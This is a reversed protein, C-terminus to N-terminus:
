QYPSIRYKHYDYNDFPEINNIEINKLEIDVEIYITKLKKLTNFSDGIPKNYKYLVVTELNELNVFSDYIPKKNYSFLDLYELKKLNNFSNNIDQNYSVLTLKKLNLLNNFANDIPLNFNNMYLEELNKLNNFAKGIVKNYKILYLHKLNTLNDLSNAIDIDYQDLYLKELNKLYTFSEKIPKNYETLYLEKLNTLNYFSNGIDDNNYYDLYLRELKLLSNFSDGIPKNYDILFLDTLESLTNLSNKLEYRKYERLLLFKLNKLKNFSNDIFHNYNYLELKELNILNDFSNNIIYNFGYLSLYKLSTLEEFSNNIPYNYNNLILKKLKKLNFLIPKSLGIFSINLSEINKLYKLSNGFDKIVFRFNADKLNNFYKIYKIYDDDSIYDFTFSKFTGLLDYMIQYKPLEKLDNIFVSLIIYTYQESIDHNFNIMSYFSYMFEVDSLDRNYYLVNIKEDFSKENIDIKKLNLFQGHGPEFSVKFENNLNLVLSNEDSYIIKINESEDIYEDEKLEIKDKNLENLIDIFAKNSNLITKFIYEINKINNHIDNSFKNYINKNPLNSVVDLWDIMTQNEDEFQLNINPYKIYFNKLADSGKQLKSIDFIGKDKIIFYNIINLITTEGCTSFIGYKSEFGAKYEMIKFEKNSLTFKEFLSNQIDNYDKDKIKLFNINYKLKNDSKIFNLIYYNLIHKSYNQDICYYLYIFESLRLIIDYKIDNQSKIDGKNIASNHKNWYKTYNDINFLDYDKINEIYKIVEYLIYKYTEKSIMNYLDSLKTKNEDCHVNDIEYCKEDFFKKTNENLIFSMTSKCCDNLEIVLDNKSNITPKQQIINLGITNIIDILEYLKNKTIFYGIINTTFYMQISYKGFTFLKRIFKYYCSKKNNNFFYMTYRFADDYYFIIDLPSIYYENDQNSYYININM